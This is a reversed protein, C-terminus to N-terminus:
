NKKKVLSNAFNVPSSTFFIFDKLKFNNMSKASGYKFAFKYFDNYTHHNHYM